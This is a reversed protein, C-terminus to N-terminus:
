RRCLPCVGNESAAAMRDVSQQHSNLRAVHCGSDDITLQVTGACAVCQGNPKDMARGLLVQPQLVGPKLFDPNYHCQKTIETCLVTMGVSRLKAIVEPRPHKPQKVTGVSLIAIDALLAHDYLWDLDSPQEDCLGGHHAVALVDCDIPKNGLRQYVLKWQAVVSDAAFVIRKGLHDLVLVASTSNTNIQDQAQLNEIFTPSFCRLRSRTDSESDTEWLVLPKDNIALPYIRSGDLQADNVLFNLRQWYRTNLFKHDQIVYVSGINGAYHDLITIAGGTHDNDSHSTILCEIKEIGNRLLFQLAIHDSKVGCDIVIARRKGLLIIQCTGLGVDVFFVEM